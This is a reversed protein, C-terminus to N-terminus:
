LKSKMYVNFRKVFNENIFLYRNIHACLKCEPALADRPAQVIYVIHQTNVTRKSFRIKLIAKKLCHSLKRWMAELNYKQKDKSEYCDIYILNLRSFSNWVTQSLKISVFASFLSYDGRITHMQNQYPVGCRFLNFLLMLDFEHDLNCMKTPVQLVFVLCLTYLSHSKADNESRTYANRTKKTRACIESAKFHEAICWFCCKRVNKSRLNIGICNKQIYFESNIWFNPAYALM